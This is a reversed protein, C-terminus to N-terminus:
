VSGGDMVLQRADNYFTHTAERSRRVSFPTSAPPRGQDTSILAKM